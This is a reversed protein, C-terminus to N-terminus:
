EYIICHERLFLWIVFNHWAFFTSIVFQKLAVLKLSNASWRKMKRPSQPACVLNTPSALLPLLNEQTNV